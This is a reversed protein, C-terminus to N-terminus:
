KLYKLFFLMSILLYFNVLVSFEGQSEVNKGCLPNMKSRPGICAAYSILHAVYNQEFVGRVLHSGPGIGFIAVDEGGHTEDDMEFTAMQQYKPNNLLNRDQRVDRWPGLISSNNPTYHYAFGPGNAYTLTLAPKDDETEIGYGLIDNGRRSYGNLTMAHSHDATVLILTDPGCEEVILSVTKEFEAAEELALRAYNDHHGHDIRGGEVMLVYGNKSRKLIDLGKKTMQSLSPTGQPSKNRLLEYPLHDHYFLGLLYDVDGVNELQKNNTVFSAKLGKHNDIWTQTLNLKDNRVCEGDSLDEFIYGMQQYGGGLIVKFNNGPADEVLQRAIDKVFPKFEQPMESDCEWERFHVHAYTSAPTAHTIRTTTIIGTSKNSLQAWTMIGELKSAEFVTRNAITKHCNVDVGVAEYRTKVGTFLATATGASDPVQMDVNYTKVLAVNPFNDYALTHDEGSKGSRQGKYIRTATITNIGMGDGILIVVNKAVRKTSEQDYKLNKELYHNGIDYWFHKDERLLKNDPTPNIYQFLDLPVNSFYEFIFFKSENNVVAAMQLSVLLSLITIVLLFM